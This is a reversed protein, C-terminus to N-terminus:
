SAARPADVRYLVIAVAVASIPENPFLWWLGTTLVTRLITHVLGLSHQIIV